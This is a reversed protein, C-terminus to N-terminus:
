ANPNYFKFQDNPNVWPNWKATSQQNGYLSAKPLYPNTANPNLKNAILNFQNMPGQPKGQLIPASNPLVAANKGGNGFMTDFNKQEQSMQLYSSAAQAASNIGGWMNQQGAQRQNTLEGYKQNYPDLENVQFQQNKLAAMQGLEQRYDSQSAQNFKAAAVDLDTISNRGGQYARNAGELLSGGTAVEGLANVNSQVQSGVKQEMIDQGPLTTMLGQKEANLLAAQAEAPIAMTPRKMANLAKKAKADQIGGAVAKGASMALQAVAIAAMIPIPM